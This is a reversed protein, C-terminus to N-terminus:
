GLSQSSRRICNPTPYVTLNAPARDAAIWELRGSPSKRVKARLLPHRAVVSVVAEEMAQRNVQGDFKLRALINMPHQPRDDWLMYEEFAALPLPSPFELM